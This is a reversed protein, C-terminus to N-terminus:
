SKYGHVLIENDYRLMLLQDEWVDFKDEIPKGLFYEDIIWGSYNGGALYSLPYGGGFRANIEIGYIAGTEKHKFFQINICGFVGPLTSLKERVMSIIENRETLGKNVEGDRVEVRKRPIVCRLSSKRDYYLDCTYEEFKDHDLYELFILNDNEFHYSNLDTEERIIFNDVGRSGNIPKIYLPLSYNDKSYEKAALIDISKFFEHTLRKNHCMRIFELDSVLPTIGEAELEKKHEALIRLETDITPILLKIDNNKCIEILRPIYDTESLSPVKFYRDSIQCAAALEPRADSTFVKADPLRTTLERKFSNVLSVRRGASCILINM